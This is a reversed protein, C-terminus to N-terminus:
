AAKWVPPVAKREKPPEYAIRCHKLCYPKGPVTLGGCYIDPGDTLPDGAIFRCDDDNLEFITKM